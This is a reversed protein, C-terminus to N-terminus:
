VSETTYLSVLYRRLKVLLHLYSSDRRRERTLDTTRLISPLLATQYPARDGMVLDEFLETAAAHADDIASSVGAEIASDGELKQGNFPALFRKEALPERALGFGGGGEVVGVDAGDEVNTFGRLALEEDGHCV